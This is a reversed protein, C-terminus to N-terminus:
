VQERKAQLEEVDFRRHGTHLSKTGNGGGEERRRGEGGREETVATTARPTQRVGRQGTLRLFMLASMVGSLTRVVRLWLKWATRASVKLSAPDGSVKRGKHIERIFIYSFPTCTHTHTYMIHTNTHWASDFHGAKTSVRICNITVSIHSILAAKAPSDEGRVLGSHFQILKGQRLVSCRDHFEVLLM